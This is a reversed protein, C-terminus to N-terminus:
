KAKKRRDYYDIGLIIAIGIVIYFIAFWTESHSFDPLYREYNQVIKNGKGDVLFESNQVAFIKHKWPWVIGLSGAIFGIIVATVIQHWRKLVYGLVHSISVLGFASGATFVSIIKLYKINQPVNLVEFNGSLIGTVVTFLGNVSDVLLLVYNGLLILIFSGSLGPFTMGSVGIIGCLFVFWLNDNEQAPTMFSIGVGVSIGIVFSLTNKFNWDGFDKYIYFLSGIIMGFFWSWVYLEYHKLFYDLVLSISFYSFMSGGMILLLFQGNVYQYFSKFRGNILLKLAKLNIKQFSYILEEYFSLVFSVTGGSVGPVKNAAGMALGKFFLATKQLFTRELKM